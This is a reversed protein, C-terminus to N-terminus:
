KNSLETVKSEHHVAIAIECKPITDNDNTNELREVLTKLWDELDAQLAEFMAAELANNLIKEKGDSKIKFKKWSDLTHKLIQYVKMRDQPYKNILSQAASENEKVQQEIVGVCPLLYNRYMRLYASLHQISKSSDMADLQDEIEQQEESIVESSRKYVAIDLTKSVILRYTM